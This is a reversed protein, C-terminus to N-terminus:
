AENGSVDYVEGTKHFSVSGDNNKYLTTVAHYTDARKMDTRNNSGSEEIIIKNGECTARYKRYYNDAKPDSNWIHEQGDLIYTVYERGLNLKQAGSEDKSMTFTARNPRTGDSPTLSTDGTFSWGSVDSSLKVIPKYTWKGATYSGGIEACPDAHVTLGSTFMLLFLLIKNM